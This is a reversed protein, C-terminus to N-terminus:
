MYMCATNSPPARAGLAGGQSRWQMYYLSNVVFALYVHVHIHKYGQKLSVRCMCTIITRSSRQGGSALALLQVCASPHRPVLRIYIVCTKVAGPQVSAPSDAVIVGSSMPAQMVVVQPAAVGGVAPGVAGQPPAIM